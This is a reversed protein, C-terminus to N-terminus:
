LDILNMEIREVYHLKFFIIRTFCNLIVKSTCLEYFYRLSMYRVKRIGPIDYKEPNTFAWVVDWEPHAKVMYLSIYKPNCGYQSGYYSMLFLKKKCIPLLRREKGMIFCFISSEFHISSIWGIKKIIVNLEHTLKTQTMVLTLVTIKIPM